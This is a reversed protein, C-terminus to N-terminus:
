VGFAGIEIGYRGGSDEMWYEHITHGRNLPGPQNLFDRYFGPVEARALDHMATPNGFVTSNAPQTVVFPQNVFDTLVLAGKFTRVSGPVPPSEGRTGPAPTYDDWTMTDPLEYRQPDIPKPAGAAFTEVTPQSRQWPQTQPWHRRQWPRDPDPGAPAAAAPTAVLAGALMLLTALAPFVRRRATMRHGGTWHDFVTSQRLAM